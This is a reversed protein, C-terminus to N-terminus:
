VARVLIVTGEPAYETTPAVTTVIAKPPVSRRYERYAGIRNGRAEITTTPMVGPTSEWHHSYGVVALYLNADYENGNALYTHTDDLEVDPYFPMSIRHSAFPEKSDALAANLFTTMEGATDINYVRDLFVRAYRPGYSAISTANEVYTPGVPLGTTPDAYYGDWQNRVDEDGWALETIDSYRAPGITADTIWRNNHIDFSASREPNLICLNGWGYSGRVRFDGGFTQVLQRAAEMVSMENQPYPNTIWNTPIPEIIRPITVLASAGEFSGQTFATSVLSQVRGLIPLAADFVVMSRLVGNLAVAGFDRCTVSVTDRGAAANVRDIRGYWLQGALVGNREIFLGIWHGPDLAARGGVIYGSDTVGPSLSESGRGASFTFTARSVAENKTATIDFSLLRDNLILQDLLEFPSNTIQVLPRMTFHPDDFGQMGLPM